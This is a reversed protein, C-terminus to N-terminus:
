PPGVDAGGGVGEVTCGDREEVVGSEAAASARERRRWRRGGLRERGVRRRGEGSETLGVGRGVRVREEVDGGEEM